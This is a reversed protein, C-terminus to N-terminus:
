EYVTGEVFIRLRWLEYKGTSTLFQSRLEVFLATARAVAEDSLIYAWMVAM